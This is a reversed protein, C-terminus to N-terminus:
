HHHDHIHDHHQCSRKKAGYEARKKAWLEYVSERSLKPVRAVSRARISNEKNYKAGSAKLQNEQIVAYDYNKTEENKQLIEGDSTEFWNLRHNGQLKAQFTTGDAHKFTQMKTYAPAAELFSLLLLFSLLHKM